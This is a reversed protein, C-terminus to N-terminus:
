NLSAVVPAPQATRRYAALARTAMDGTLGQANMSAMLATMSNGTQAAALATGGALSPM